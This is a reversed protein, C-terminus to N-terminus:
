EILIGKHLLAEASPRKNIAAALSSELSKRKLCDATAEVRSKLIGAGVMDDRSPRRGLFRNIANPVHTSGEAGDLWEEISARGDITTALSSSRTRSRGASYPMSELIGKAFVEEASPRRKLHKELVNPVHPSLQEPQDDCDDLWAEISPREGIMSSLPQSSVVM